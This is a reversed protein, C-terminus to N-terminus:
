LQILCCGSVEMQYIHIECVKMITETIFVFTYNLWLFGSFMQHLAPVCGPSLIIFGALRVGKLFQLEHQTVSQGEVHMLECIGM